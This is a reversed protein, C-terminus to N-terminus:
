AQPICEIELFAGTANAEAVFQPIGNVVDLSSKHIHGAFVGLLNPTSFVTRHFEMTVRSHGSEPWRRRRELEFNRDSKAGWDPHGCGFGVARGPAYLPIHVMLITPKGEEVQQRFFRLQEPLIEYHSNDLAVVRVDGVDRATMLPNDGHYMPLLRRQIWTSRLEELSGEMGEYHWDHNGAVYLHPMALRSTRHMVWEVAAESPFSLIDGLLAVLDARSDTAIQIAKEFGAEPNTPEGTQFHRTSNYAKAMRGSYSRFNEGRVDDRFLHTDAIVMLRAPRKFSRSFFRVRNADLAFTGREVASRKKGKDPWVAAEMGTGAHMGGAALVAAQVFRRRKM